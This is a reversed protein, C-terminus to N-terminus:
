KGQKVLVREFADRELKMDVLRGKVQLIARILIETEPSRRM